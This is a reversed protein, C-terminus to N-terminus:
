TESVSSPVVFNFKKAGGLRRHTIQEFIVRSIPTDADYSSLVLHNQTPKKSMELVHVTVHGVCLIHAHHTMVMETSLASQQVGAGIDGACASPDYRGAIPM